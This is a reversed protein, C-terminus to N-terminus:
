CKLPSGNGKSYPDHIDSLVEPTNQLGMPREKVGGMGGGM